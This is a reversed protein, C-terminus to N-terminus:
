TPPSQISRSSRTQSERPPHADAPRYRADSSRFPHTASCESDFYLTRSKQVTPVFLYTAGVTFTRSEVGLRNNASGDVTVIPAVHEGKWVERVRVRVVPFQDRNRSLVKGVFVIAASRMVGSMSPAQACSAYALPTQRPAMISTGLLAALFTRSAWWRGSM